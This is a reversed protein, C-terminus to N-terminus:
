LEFREWRGYKNNNSNNNLANIYRLNALAVFTDDVISQSLGNWTDTLYQRLCGHRSSAYSICTEAGHGM